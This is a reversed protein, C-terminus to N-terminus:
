TCRDKSLLHEKSLSGVFISTKLRREVQHIWNRITPTHTHTHTHIPENGTLWVM